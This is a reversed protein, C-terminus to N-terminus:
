FENGTAAAGFLESCAEWIADGTVATVLLELIVGYIGPRAAAAAACASFYSILQLGPRLSLPKATKQCVLPCNPWYQLKQFNRLNAASLFCPLPRQLPLPPTILFPFILKSALCYFSLSPSLLPFGFAVLLNRRSFAYVTISYPAEPWAPIYVHVYLVPPLDTM